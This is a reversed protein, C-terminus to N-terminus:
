KKKEKSKSEKEKREKLMITVHSTRKKIEYTRGMARARWRKLTPGQDVSIKHIYLNEDNLQYNHKANAVASQLLKRLPESARKPLFKLVALAQNPDKGKILRTVGRVKRPSMRLHNLKATVETM